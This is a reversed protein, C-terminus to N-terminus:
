RSRRRRAKFKAGHAGHHVFSVVTRAYKAFSRARKMARHLARPNLPNMSRNRAISYMSRAPQKVYHWGRPPVGTQGYFDLAQQRNHITLRGAQGALVLGGGSLAPDPGHSPQLQIVNSGGAALSNGRYNRWATGLDRGIGYGTAFGGGLGGAASAPPPLQPMVGLNPLGTFGQAKPGGGFMGGLATGAMGGLPGGFATGVLPAAMQALGGLGRGIGGVLRSFLSM